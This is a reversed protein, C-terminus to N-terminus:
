ILQVGTYFGDQIASFGNSAKKANGIQIVEGTYDTLQDALDHSEREGTAIVVYDIDSIIKTSGNTKCTAASNNIREISTGTLICVGSKKLGEMLYMRPMYEMDEALTNKLEALTVTFGRVALYEATEAGVSGGGIVLINNPITDNPLAKTLDAKGMLVDRAIGHPITDLGPIQPIIPQSGTADIVIDPQADKIEKSTIKTNLNINVNNEDLLTAQRHIVEGFDAKNVPVCAAQWQGGLANSQEFLTVKHGRYAAWIAAECGALGGGIVWVTKPQAVPSFDDIGSNTLPNVLCKIKRGKDMEGICGQTCGICRYIKSVQGDKLKKPMYPDTLAERGMAIFDTVGNKIFMEGMEPDVIRGNAMVPINVCEKIARTNEIYSGKPINYPSIWVNRTNTGGQGVCITDVGAGELMMALTQSEAITQGGPVDDIASMKYIILFDSGVKKRINKVVELAFRARGSLSGGYADTRKNNLPSVFAYVLYRNGGHIEVGDYGAKKARLASDGYLEIVEHIQEVTLMKPTDPFQHDQVSFPSVPIKGTSARKAFIGGHSLQAIIKSDYNHIVDTMAKHAPIVDDSSLTMSRGKFPDADPTVMIMDTVIIGWNGKAREEFYTITDKTPIGDKSCYNHMATMVLRNKFLLSGIQYESLLHEFM